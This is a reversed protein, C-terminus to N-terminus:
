LRQEYREIQNDTVQRLDKGTQFARYWEVTWELAEALTLRPWWQLLTNARSTDLRLYTDEHPHSSADMAWPHQNNWLQLMREVVWAVPRADSPMPGFNWGGEFQPGAEWLKEALMLYGMLPELVFQWPRIAQPHRIRLTQQNLIARVIDPLLRNQAWDGGGIVNGTRVTAIAVGHEHYKDAPFFSNRYAATVLEACAKSSAYPDFGGLRDNERYGWHWGRNDYCKDSTVVIVVRVSHVSRVAELLNVTGMVNTAYTEVPQQYSTQVLAQAALHFVIEPEANAICNKIADLERIDGDISTMGGAVHALQ